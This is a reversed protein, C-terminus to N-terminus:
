TLLRAPLGFMNRFTQVDSLNINTRGIVAISQGTGDTSDAYLSATDYIVAFDGPTLYHSSGSTWQGGLGPGGALPAAHLGAYLPTSHFDNLSAIGRVVSALARPIAPPRQNAYHKVGNVNYIHVATHFTAAVQETSGSFIIVRHAASVPEVDFGSSQLWAVIQDVDEGSVGFSAGFAEPTLWRQYDPSSPDQQAALLEELAQEQVTDPQLVLVMRDMRLDAPAVGQDYVASALPHLDGSRVVM